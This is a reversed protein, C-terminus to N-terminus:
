GANTISLAHVSLFELQDRSRKHSCIQPRPPVDTSLVISESSVKDALQQRATWVNRLIREEQTRYHAIRRALKQVAEEAEKRAVAAAFVSTGSHEYSRCIARSGNAAGHDIESTTLSSSSLGSVELKTPTGLNRPVLDRLRAVPSRSVPSAVKGCDSANAPRTPPPHPISSASKPRSVVVVPPKPQHLTM